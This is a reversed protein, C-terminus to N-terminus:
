GSAAIVRLFALRGGHIAYLGYDTLTTDGNDDISYTGIAGHRATTDFLARIIGERNSSGARDIAALALRMAEYGYIAYPDPSRGDERALDDFVRTGPADLGARGLVPLTLRLRAAVGASLGGPRREAFALDALAGSGYLRARPLARALAVVSSEVSARASFVVCDPRRRAVRAALSRGYAASGSAVSVDDVVIPGHRALAHGVIRALGRGAGDHLIAARRCGDERMLTALAAGQFTDRPVIRVFNRVGGPYHVDPEGAAAGLEATTLGVATSAPSIQAVGAASLIPISVASADSSLEGIYVATTRDRAALTANRTVARATWGRAAATADDLSAYRVTFGGAKGGAQALALRMGRIMDQSRARQPGQLPLSSFVTLWKADGGVLQSGVGVLLVGLVGAALAIVRGRGGRRVTARAARAGRALPAASSAPPVTRTRLAFAAAMDVRHGDEDALFRRYSALAADRAVLLDDRHLPALLLDRSVIGYVMELPRGHEDILVDTAGSSVESVDALTLQESTYGISLPGAEDDDVEVVRTGDAGVGGAGTSAALVHERRATILFEPSLVTRYGARRGRAVLFAWGQSVESM